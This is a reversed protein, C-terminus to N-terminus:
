WGLMMIGSHRIWSNIYVHLLEKHPITHKNRSDAFQRRPLTQSTTKNIFVVSVRPNVVLLRFVIKYM